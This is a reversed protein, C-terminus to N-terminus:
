IKKGFLKWCQNPMVKILIVEAVVVIIFGGVVPFTHIQMGFMKEIVRIGYIFLLHTCLIVITNEGLFALGNLIKTESRIKVNKELWYFIGILAVITLVASSFALIPNGFIGRSYTVSTNKLELYAGLVLAFIAGFPILKENIKHWYNKLFYGSVFFVSSILVLRIRYYGGSM